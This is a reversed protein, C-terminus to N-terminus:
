NTLFLTGLPDECAAIFLEIFCSPLVIAAAVIPLSAVVLPVILMIAFSTPLDDLPQQAVRGELEDAFKPYNEYPKM